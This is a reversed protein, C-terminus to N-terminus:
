FQPGTCPAGNCVDNVFGRPHWFTDKLAQAAPIKPTDDHPDHGARPPRTRSRRSRRAPTSCSTPRASGRPVDPDAPHRLRARRRVRPRSRRVPRSRVRRDHPGRGPARVRQGPPRRRRRAAPRHPEAHAPARSPHPAARLRQDRRPGVADPRHQALAAPHVSRSLSTDLILKYLTSTSAATAAADLLEHGGRRARLPPLRPRRRVARRRPHRGPQQRRLLARPHQAGPAGDIQFAPNSAFGDPHKMLRGLFLFNLLGQQLRDALTAFQSLDQLVAVANGVDEEAMGIWDTACYAVNYTAAMPRVLSGNVESQDGLLGHGYMSM